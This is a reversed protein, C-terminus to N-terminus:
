MSIWTHTRLGTRDYEDLRGFHNEVIQNIDGLVEDVRSPPPTQIHDADVDLTSGRGVERRRRKTDEDVLLAATDATNEHFLPHEGAWELTLVTSDLAHELDELRDPSEIDFDFGLVGLRVGFGMYMTIDDM